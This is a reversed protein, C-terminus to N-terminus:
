RGDLQQLLMQAPRYNPNASLIGDLEARAADHKGDAALATALNVHYEPDGPAIAIAARFQEIAEAYRARERYRQGPQQPGFSCLQGRLICRCRGSFTFLRRTSNGIVNSNTFAWPTSFM